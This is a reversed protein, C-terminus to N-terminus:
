QLRSAHRSILKWVEDKFVYVETIFLTTKLTNENMAAHIHCQATLIATNQESRVLIDTLEAEYYVITGELVNQIVDDKSEVVGNSHIYLLNDDLYRQLSDAQKEILWDFKLRSLHSIVENVEASANLGINIMLALAIFFIRMLFM